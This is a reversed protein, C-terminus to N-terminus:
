SVAFICFVSLIDCPKKSIMTLIEFSRFKKRSKQTYKFIIMSNEHFVIM